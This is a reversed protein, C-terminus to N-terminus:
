HFSYKDTNFILFFIAVNSLHLQCKDITKWIKNTTGCAGGL